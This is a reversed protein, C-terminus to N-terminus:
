DEWDKGESNPAGNLAKFPIQFHSPSLSVLFPLYYLLVYYNSTYTICFLTQYSSVIM